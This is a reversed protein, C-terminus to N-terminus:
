DPKPSTVRSRAFCSMGGPPSLRYVSCGPQAGRLSFQVLHHHTPATHGSTPARTGLPPCMQRPSSLMFFSCKTCDEPTLSLSWRGELWPLSQLIFLCHKCASDEEWGQLGRGQGAEAECHRGWHCPQLPPAALRGDPPGPLLSPSNGPGVGPLSLRFSGGWACLWSNLWWSAPQCTDGCASGAM